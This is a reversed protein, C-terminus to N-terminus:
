RVIEVRTGIVTGTEDNEWHVSGNKDVTDTQGKHAGGISRSGVGGKLKSMESIKLTKISQIKEFKMFNFNLFIVVWMAWWERM